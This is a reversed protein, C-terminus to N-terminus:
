ADDEAADGLLSQIDVTPVGTPLRASEDDAEPGRYGHRRDYEELGSMVSENAALQFESQITTYVSYGGTYAEPGLRSLAQQRVM